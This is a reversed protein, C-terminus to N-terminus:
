RALFVFATAFVVLLSIASLVAIPRRSVLRPASDTYWRDFEDATHRVLAFCVFGVVLALIFSVIQIDM